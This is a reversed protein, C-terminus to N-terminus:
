GISYMVKPEKSEFDIGVDKDVCVPWHSRNGIQFTNNCQYHYNTIFKLLRKAESQADPLPRLPSYGSGYDTLLLLGYLCFAGIGMLLYNKKRRMPSRGTRPCGASM